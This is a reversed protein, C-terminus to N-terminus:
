LLIENKLREFLMSQENLDKRQKCKNLFVQVLLVEILKMIETKKYNQLQKLLNSEKM